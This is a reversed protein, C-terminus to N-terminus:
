RRRMVVFVAVGIGVAALLGILAIVAGYETLIYGPTLKASFAASTPSLRSEKMVGDERYQTFIEIRFDGAASVPIRASYIKDNATVDGDRGEDNMPYSAVLTNGRYLHAEVMAEAKTVEATVLMTGGVRAEGNVSVTGIAGASNIITVTTEALKVFGGDGAAVRFTYEGDAFRTTDINYRRAETNELKAMEVFNTRGPARYYLTFVLADGDADSAEWRLEITRSVRSGDTPTVIRLTPEHNSVDFSAYPNTANGFTETNDLRDWAQLYYSIRDGKVGEPLTVTWAGDRETLSLPTYAQDNLRYWVVSRNVGVRDDVFTANISRGQPFFQFLAPPTDDVYVTTSNFQRNFNGVDDEAWFQITYLRPGTYVGPADNIRFPGSYVTEAAGPGGGLIRYRIGGLPISTPLGDIDEAALTFRTALSVNMVHAPQDRYSPSASVLRVTPAVDDVIFTFNFFTSLAESSNDTASLNVQVLDRHNFKKNAPVAYSVLYGNLNGPAPLLDFDVPLGAVTMEISSGMVGEVDRVVVEIRPTSPTMPELM